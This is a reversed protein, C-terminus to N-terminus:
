QSEKHMEMHSTSPRYEYRLRRKNMWWVAWLDMIGRWLRNRIGYKSAGHARPFHQVDCETVTFGHMMALAPFFRHMGDFLQLRDVLERRFVKLSCGTDRVHDRTVCHRVANAVRSSLGRITPDNRTSRRGCVLDFAESLPLLRLIDAPDYQLDGDMTVIRDGRAQRFGADFAATQGYRQAFHFVRIHRHANALEDLIIGSRDTSGDDVFIIEYPDPQDSFIRIIQATLPAVNECENYVPIVISLFPRAHLSM